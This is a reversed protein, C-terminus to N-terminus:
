SLQECPFMVWTRLRGGRVNFDDYNMDGSKWIFSTFGAPWLKSKRGCGKGCAHADTLGVLRDGPYKKALARQRTPILM